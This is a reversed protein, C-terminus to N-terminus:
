ISGAGRPPAELSLSMQRHDSLRLRKAPHRRGCAPCRGPDAAEELAPGGNGKPWGEVLEKVRHRALHLEGSIQNISYGRQIWLTRVAIANREVSASPVLLLEGKVAGAKLHRAAVLRAAKIGILKSLWTNPGVKDPMPMYKQQGGAVQGVRLAADIGVVQAILALVGPLTEPKPYWSPATM